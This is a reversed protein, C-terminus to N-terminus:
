IRIITYCLSIFMEVMNRKSRFLLSQQRNAKAEKGCILMPAPTITATVKWFTSQVGSAWVPVSRSLSLRFFMSLVTSSIWSLTAPITKLFSHSNNKRQIAFAPVTFGIGADGKLFIIIITTTGVKCASGTDKM